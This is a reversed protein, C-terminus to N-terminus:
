FVGEPAAPREILDENENRLPRLTTNRKHSLSLLPQGRRNTKLSSGHRSRTLRAALIGHTGGYVVGLIFYILAIGCAVSKAGKAISAPCSIEGNNLRYEIM